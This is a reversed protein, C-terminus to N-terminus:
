CRCITCLFFFANCYIRIKFNITSLKRIEKKSKEIFGECNEIFEWLNKMHWVIHLYIAMQFIGSITAFFSIGFELLTQAEFFLFAGSSLIYLLYIVLFIKNRSNISHSNANSAHSYIGIVYYYKLNSQFLKISGAM